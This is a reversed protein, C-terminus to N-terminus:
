VRRPSKRSARSARAKARHQEHQRQMERELADFAAHLAAVMDADEKGARLARGPVTALLGVEETGRQHHTSRAVKVQVRLLEPYRDALKALREDILVRWPDRLPVHKAHIDVNL